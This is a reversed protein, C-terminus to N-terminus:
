TVVRAGNAARYRNWLYTATRSATVTGTAANTSTEWAKSPLEEPKLRSRPGSVRVTQAITTARDRLGFARASTKDDM